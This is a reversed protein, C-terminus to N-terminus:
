KKGREKTNLKQEKYFSDNSCETITKPSKLEFPNKEYSSIEEENDKKTLENKSKEEKLYKIGPKNAKKAYNKMPSRKLESHFLLSKNIKGYNLKNLKNTNLEKNTQSYLDKHLIPNENKTNQKQHKGTEEPRKM